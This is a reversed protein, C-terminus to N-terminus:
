QRTGKLHIVLEKPFDTLSEFRGDPTCWYTDEVRVGYGKSPYYLGPEVSFV